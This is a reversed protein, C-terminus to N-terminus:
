WQYLEYLLFVVFFLSSQVRKTASKALQKGYYAIDILISVDNTTSKASQETLNLKTIPAQIVWICPRVGAFRIDLCARFPFFLMFLSCNQAELRYLIIFLILFSFFIYYLVMISIIYSIRFCEHVRFEWALVM